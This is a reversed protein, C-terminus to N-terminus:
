TVLIFIGIVGMKFTNYKQEFFAIKKLFYIMKYSNVTKVTVRQKM